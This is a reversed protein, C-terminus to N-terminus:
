LCKVVDGAKVFLRGDVTYKETKSLTRVIFKDGRNIQSFAEKVREADAFPMTFHWRGAPGCGIITMGRRDRMTNSIAVFLNGPFNEHNKDSASFILYSYSLYQKKLSCVKDFAEILPTPQWESYFHCWDAKATVNLPCQRQHLCPGIISIGEEAILSDRLAQLDRSVRKSSPEMALVLTKKGALRGLVKRMFDSQAARDDFEALINGFFIWDCDKGISRLRNIHGSYQQVTIKVQQLGAKKLYALLIERGEGVISRNQEIAFINIEELTKPWGKQVLAMVLGLTMTLPGSGVDAISLNKGRVTESLVRAYKMFLAAAKHANVPLFYALYASRAEPFSLYDRRRASVDTTFGRHLRKVGGSFFAIDNKNWPRDRFKKPTYTKKIYTTIVDDIM